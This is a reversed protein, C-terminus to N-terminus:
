AKKLRRRRRNRERRKAKYEEYRVPDNKLAQWKLKNSELQKAKHEEYRVPDNKLAKWKLKGRGKEKESAYKWRAKEYESSSAYDDRYVGSAKKQNLCNEDGWDIYKDEERCLDRRTKIEHVALEKINWSELGTSKMAM